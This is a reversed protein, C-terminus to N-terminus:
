KKMDPSWLIPTEAEPDTRGVFIGSPNGKPYVTQLEKCDLVIEPSKELV